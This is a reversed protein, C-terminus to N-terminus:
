YDTEIYLSMTAYGVVSSVGGVSVYGYPNLLTTSSPLDTLIHWLIYRTRKM